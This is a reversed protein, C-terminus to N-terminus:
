QRRAVQLIQQSTSNARQMATVLADLKEITLESVEKRLLTDAKSNALQANAVDLNEAFATSFEETRLTGGPGAISATTSGTGTLSGIGDRSSQLIKALDNSDKGYDPTAQSSNGNQLNQNPVISGNANPKFLEPGNEGVLYTENSNVPGGGAKGSFLGFGTSFMKSVKDWREAAREQSAALRAEGEKDRANEWAEPTLGMSDVTGAAPKITSGGPLYKLFSDPNNYFDAEASSSGSAGTIAGTIEDKLAQIGGDGFLKLMKLMETNSKQVIEAFEKVASAAPGMLEAAMKDAEIAARQLAVQASIMDATTTDTATTLSNQSTELDKLNIATLDARQAVNFMGQFVADMPTGLGVLRAIGDSGGLADFRNNIGQMILATADLDSITGARLAAVAAVGEQGAALVFGQAAETGLNGAMADRLGDAIETSAVSEIAASTTQMAQAAIRGAEGGIREQIAAAAGMLRLNRTQADMISQASDISKGTIRSLTSLKRIYEESGQALAKASMTEVRGTRAQLLLYKSTLENQKEAGIGLALLGQRFPEMDRSVRSFREIGVSADGFAFALGEASKSAVTSFQSFSLGADISQEMVGTLGKATLGGVQGVARFAESARQIESTLFPGVSTLITAVADTIAAAFKGVAGIAGGIVGGVLPIGDALGGLADGAVGALKGTMRLASGALNISPNLSTFDERSQRVASAASAFATGANVAGVAMKGVAATGKGVSNAFKEQSEIIAKYKVQVQGLQSQIKNWQTSGVQQSNALQLMSQQLRNIEENLRRLEQDDIDAM